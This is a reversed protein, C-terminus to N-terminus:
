HTLAPSAVDSAASVDAPTFYLMKEKTAIYFHLKSVVNQGLALPYVGYCREYTAAGLRSSLHCPNDAPLDILAIRANIIELGEGSLKMARYRATTRGSNDTETEVGASHSDFNFLKRTADTNLTTVPSSTALTTELKKGELEMPFYFEGLSGFRIPASDYKASWYVTHGPCHDQSFLNMKRHAADLEIDFGRLVDMALIGVVPADASIERFRVPPLVVFTATRFPIGGFEFPTATAMHMDPYKDTSRGFPTAMPKVQLSLSDVASQTVSSFPTAMNLVMYARTGQITVPVLLYGDAAGALDISAYRKLGCDKVEAAVSGQALLAFCVLSMKGVLSKHV